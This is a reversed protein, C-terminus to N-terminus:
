LGLPRPTPFARAYSDIRRRRIDRHPFFNPAPLRYSASLACSRAEGPIRILYREARDDGAVGSAFAAFGSEIEAIRRRKRECNAGIGQGRRCVAQREAAEAGFASQCCRRSASPGM